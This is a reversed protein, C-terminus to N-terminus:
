QQCLLLHPHRGAPLGPGAEHQPLGQPNTKPVLHLDPVKQLQSRLTGSNIEQAPGKTDGLFYSCLDYSCRPMTTSLVLSCSVSGLFGIIQKYLVLFCFVSLQHGKGSTKWFIFIAVSYYSKQFSVTRGKM